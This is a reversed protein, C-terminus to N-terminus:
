CPLRELTANLARAIASRDSPETHVARTSYSADVSGEIDVGRVRFRKRRRGGDGSNQAQVDEREEVDWGAVDAEGSRGSGFVDRSCVLDQVEAEVISRRALGDILAAHAPRLARSAVDAGEFEFDSWGSGDEALELHVGELVGRQLAPERDREVRNRRIAEEGPRRRDDTRREAGDLEISRDIGCREPGDSEVGCREPRGGPRWEARHWGM